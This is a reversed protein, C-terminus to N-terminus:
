KSRREQPVPLGGILETASVGLGDCLILILSLAPEIRGAELNRIAEPPVRCKSALRKPTVKRALRLERLREGFMQMLSMREAAAQLRRSGGAPAGARARKQTPSM